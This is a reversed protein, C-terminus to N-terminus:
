GPRRWTVCGFTSDMIAPRAIVVKSRSQLLSSRNYKDVGGYVRILEMRVSVSM